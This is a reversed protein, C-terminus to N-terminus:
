AQWAEARRRRARWGLPGASGERGAGRTDHRAVFGDGRQLNVPAFVIQGDTQGGTFGGAVGGGAVQKGGM